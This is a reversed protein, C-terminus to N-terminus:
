RAYSTRKQAASRTHQQPAVAQEISGGIKKSMEQISDLAQRVEQPSWGNYSEALAALNPLECEVGFRRCLLFSVSQADISCENRDYFENRGKNHFRSHAVEAAIAAFAETDTSVPDVYLEMSQADYYAPTDMAEDAKVPAAAYNLLTTLAREMEPTGDQLQISKPEKGYTQSIDYVETVVFGKGFSGRSFIQM